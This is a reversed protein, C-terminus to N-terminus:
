HIMRTFRGDYGPLTHHTTTNWATQPQRSKKLELKKDHKWKKTLRLSFKNSNYHCIFFFCFCNDSINLSTTSRSLTPASNGYINKYSFLTWMFMYSVLPFASILTNGFVNQVRMSCIQLIGFLLCHLWNRQEMRCVFAIFSKAEPPSRQKAGQGPVRGRPGAPPEAQLGWLLSV